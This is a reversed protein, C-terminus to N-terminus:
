NQQSKMDNFQNIFDRARDAMPGNPEIDLAKQFWILADEHRGVSNSIIAMNFTANIHSSDIDLARGYYAMASDPQESYFFATGADVLVDVDGPKQILVSKYISLAPKFYAFDYYLNAKQTMLEVSTPDQALMKDIEALQGQLEMNQAPDVPPAPPQEMQQPPPSTNTAAIQPTDQTRRGLFFVLALIICFVILAGIGIMLNRNNSNQSQRSKNKAKRPAFGSLKVGCQNCFKSGNPNAHGCSSCVGSNKKPASATQSNKFKYGCTRCHQSNEPNDAKCNPCNM